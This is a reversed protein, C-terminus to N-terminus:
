LAFEKHLSTFDSFFFFLFYKKFGLLYLRNQESMQGFYWRHEEKLWLYPMKLYQNSVFTPCLALLKHGLCKIKQLLLTFFTPIMMLLHTIINYIIFIFSFTDDPSYLLIDSAEYFAIVILLKFKRPVRIVQHIPFGCM